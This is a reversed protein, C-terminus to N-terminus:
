LGLHRACAELRSLWWERREASAAYRQLLEASPKVTTLNLMGDIPILPEEVIDAQLLAATGLGCDFELEPLSAAARLGYSLGVSTELSSSVVVPLGAEEAIKLMRRIGGLPAVKLVLIDAAEAKAVAIPDDAKRVLEDAAIKAVINADALRLRLEVLEEISACPQEFYEIEIARDYLARVMAFAEDVSWHGNADLRIKADPKERLVAEIRSLDSEAQGGAVKIKVTRFNGFRALVAAVQEPLVEPLTANIGISQRMSLPTPEFACEIASQLWTSSEATGYELFPSFEAWGNPGEFLLAERHDVARFRERLPISVVRANQTLDTLDIPV